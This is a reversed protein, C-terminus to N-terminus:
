GRRGAILKCYIVGGGLRRAVELSGKLYVTICVLLGAPDYLAFARGHQRISYTNTSLPVQLASPPTTFDKSDM